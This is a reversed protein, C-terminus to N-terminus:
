KKQLEALSGPFAGELAEDLRRREAARAPGGNIIGSGVIAGETVDDDLIGGLVANGDNDEDEHAYEEHEEGETWTGAGGDEDMARSRLAVRDRGRSRGGAAAEVVENGLTLVGDVAEESILRRAVDAGSEARNQSATSPKGRSGERRSLASHSSHRTM